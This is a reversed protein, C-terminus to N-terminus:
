SSWDRFEDGFGLGMALGFIAAAWVSWLPLQETVVFISAVASLGAAGALAWRAYWGRWGLHAWWRSHFLVFGILAGMTASFVAGLAAEVSTPDALLIYGFGM